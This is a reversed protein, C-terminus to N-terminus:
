FGQAITHCSDNAIGRIFNALMLRGKLGLLYLPHGDRKPKAIAFTIYIGWGARAIRDGKGDKDEESGRCGAVGCDSPWVAIPVRM